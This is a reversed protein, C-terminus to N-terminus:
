QQVCWARSTRNVPSPLGSWTGPTHLRGGVCSVYYEGAMPGATDWGAPASYGGGRASCLKLLVIM